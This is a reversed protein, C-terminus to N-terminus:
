AAIMRSREHLPVGHLQDLKERLVRGIEASPGPRDMDDHTCAIDHTEIKGLVYPRWADPAILASSGGGRRGGWPGGEYRALSRIYSADLEPQFSDGRWRHDSMSDLVALLAIREGQQELQTAMSHAINGGLSWGLLYYPGDPQIRRMQQIYDLAMADISTALLSPDDFGRAQIGYVPQEPPLHSALNRYHWSLGSVPHICFLPARKAPVRIPVLVPFSEHPAASPALMAKSLAAISPRSFLEHVPITVGLTARCRQTMQLALLSHGGLAFFDDHRGIRRMGLLEAWLAALAAEFDGQPAEYNQLVFADSDPALLARRDIKGNSTLAFADLRLFASPVM